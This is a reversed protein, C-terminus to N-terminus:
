YNDEKEIESGVKQVTNRPILVSIIMKEPDSEPFVWRLICFKALFRNNKGTLIM